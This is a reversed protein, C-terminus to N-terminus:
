FPNASWFDEEIDEGIYGSYAANPEMFPFASSGPFFLPSAEKM